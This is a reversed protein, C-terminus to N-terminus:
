GATACEVLVLLPLQHPRDMVGCEAGEWAIAGEYPQEPLEAQAWGLQLSQAPAVKLPRGNVRAPDNTHGTGLVRRRKARTRHPPRNRRSESFKERCELWLPGSWCIANERPKRLVVKSPCEALPHLHPDSEM